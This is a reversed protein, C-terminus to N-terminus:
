CLPNRCLGTNHRLFLFYDHINPGATCKASLAACGLSAYMKAFIGKWFGRKRPEQNKQTVFTILGVQLISEWSESTNDKPAHQPFNPEGQGFTQM